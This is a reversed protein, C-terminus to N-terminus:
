GLTAAWKLLNHATCILDWERRVKGVGRLLFRRFGRPEKIQGIVPEVTQKRLRYRSRHGARKLRLRMVGTRAGTKPRIEETASGQGHKQRGTAIYGRIHRRSLEKLNEESCFGADASLEKAQRGTNEKIQQVMPILEHVDAASQTLGRAVIVQSGADVALQANYGQIYGDKTRMMRSEPDTFNRQANAPPVGVPTKRRRGGRYRPESKQKSELEAKAKAEAELAAKAERIKQLRQQKNAVWEPLEDGRRGPGHERDEREDVRKAEQLWGRVEAALRVEETKMRGYSMAKHKSANAKVKTGDLAVHGLQVLGAQRCLTLVQGFLNGLAELHRRRFDSITRFDPKQLATVAMFDVREECARAIRRSSYTGQCYAYLLLATMMAPHYPPYGREESYCVLIESLDLGDRVTDRVLHALHGAPVLEQISPPFMWIQDVDWPRFTKETNM